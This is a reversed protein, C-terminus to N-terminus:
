QVSCDYVKVQGGGVMMGPPMQGAPPSNGNGSMLPGGGGPGSAFSLALGEVVRCQSAVWVGLDGGAGSSMVYGIHGASALAAFDEASYINDSGSFGGLYLVKLDTDLIIQSGIMSSPVVLDYTAETPHAALYDLLPTVTQAMQDQQAAGQGPAIMSGAAAGAYAAPLAQIVQAELATVTGWATPIALLAITFAIAASRRWWISGARRALLLSVVLAVLPAAVLAVAPLVSVGYLGVVYLQVGLTVVLLVAGWLQWRRQRQITIAEWVTVLGIGVLAALAPALTALYYAHFFRAVSFFAAGTLLWGGWLAVAQHERALPFAIKRRLALAGITLLGVPLLWAIENALATSFLRTIGAQGIEGTGGPGGAALGGDPRAVGTTVASDTSGAAGGTGGTRASISATGGLAGMGALRLVGNYGLALQLASDTQSSGVYPRQDAPTLDVVLAWSLSTAVLVASAVVLRAVRRRWPLSTSLFYFAYLAPVILYAQLMKVNFGVGLLFAGLLLHAWRGRETARIFAWTALLLVFILISDPNNTRDVAVSVPTIALVFAAILGALKGFGKSVLHYLLAVSLTGAIVSPLIVAFGSVGLVAAFIAQVWLAVPPKDVTVGGADAVGFFFNAPSTLMNKVAATYYANGDGFADANVLRLGAAIGVIAVLALLTWTLGFPLTRASPRKGTQAPLTMTIQTM